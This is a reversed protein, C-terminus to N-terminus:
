DKKSIYDLFGLAIGFFLLTQAFSNWAAATIILTHGILQTIIGLILSVAAALIFVILLNRM